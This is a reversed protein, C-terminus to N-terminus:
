AQAHAREVSLRAEVSGVPLARRAIGHDAHAADLVLEGPAAHGVGIGRASRGEMAHQRKAPGVLVELEHVARDIAADDPRRAAAAPMAVVGAELRVALCAGGGLHAVGLLGGDAMAPPCEGFQDLGTELSSAM